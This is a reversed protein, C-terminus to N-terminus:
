SAAESIPAPPRLPLLPWVPRPVLLSVQSSICCSLTSEESINTCRKASLLATRRSVIRSCTRPVNHNSSACLLTRHPQVQMACASEWCRSPHQPVRHKPKGKNEHSVTARTVAELPRARCRWKQSSRLTCCCFNGQVSGRPRLVDRPNAVCTRWSSVLELSPQPPGVGNIYEGHLHSATM